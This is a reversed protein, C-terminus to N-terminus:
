TNLIATGGLMVDLNQQFDFPPILTNDGLFPEIDFSFVWYLPTCWKVLHFHSNLSEIGLLIWDTKSTVYLLLLMLLCLSFDEPWCREQTKPIILLIGM